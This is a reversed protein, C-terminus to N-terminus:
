TKCISRAFHILVVVQPDVSSTIMPKNKQIQWCIPRKSGDLWASAAAQGESAASAVVRMLQLPLVLLGADVAGSAEGSGRVPRNRGGRAIAVPIGVRGSAKGAECPESTHFCARM